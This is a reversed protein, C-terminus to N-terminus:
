KNGDHNEETGETDETASAKGLGDIIDQLKQAQAAHEEDSMRGANATATAAPSPTPRRPLVKLLAEPQPWWKLERLLQKFGAKIRERDLEKTMGEGVVQVWMEATIPLMEVAPTSGLRLGVMWQFANAIELRLWHDPADPQEKKWEGLGQLAQVSRPLYSAGRLNVPYGLVTRQPPQFTM